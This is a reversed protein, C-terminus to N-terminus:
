GVIKSYASIAASLADAMDHLIDMVEQGDFRTPEMSDFCLVGLTVQDASILPIAVFAQYDPRQNNKKRFRYSPHDCTWLGRDFRLVARQTQGTKYAYGAVGERDPNGVEFRRATTTTTNGIQSVKIRRAEDPLNRHKLFGLHVGEGETPAPRLVSGRSKADGLIQVAGELFLEVVEGIRDDLSPRFPRTVNTAAIPKLLNFYTLALNEMRKVIDELERIQYEARGKRELLDAIQKTQQTVKTQLKANEASTIQREADLKNRKRQQLKHDFLWSLALLAVVFWAVLSPAFLYLAVLAAFLTAIVSVLIWQVLAAALNDFIGWFRELLFTKINPKINNM